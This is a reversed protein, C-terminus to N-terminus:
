LKFKAQLVRRRQVARQSTTSSLLVIANALQVQVNVYKESGTTMLLSTTM